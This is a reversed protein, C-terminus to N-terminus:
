AGAEVAALRTFDPALSRVTGAGAVVVALDERGAPGRHGARTSAWPGPCATPPPAPTPPDAPLDMEVRGDSRVTCTLVGSRTHFRGSGLVSATALTAHGCLDVETTPTFWRLDHDGDARRVAFATESLHMEDAVQQMWREDAPHDLLCVAAPNGTFPTDTFADVVVLTLPM